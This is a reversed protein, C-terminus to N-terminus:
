PSPRTFNKSRELLRRTDADTYFIRYAGCRYCWQVSQNGWDGETIDAAVRGKHDCDRQLWALLKRKIWNM